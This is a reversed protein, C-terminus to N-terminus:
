EIFGNEKLINLIELTTRKKGKQYITQAIRKAQVYNLLKWDQFESEKIYEEFSSEETAITFFYYWKGVMRVPSGEDNELKRANYKDQSFKISRQTILQSDKISTKGIFREGLEEGMERKLATRAGEGNEIGGQPFQWINYKDDFFLFIKKKKINIFCGVAQPRFGQERIKNIESLNPTKM